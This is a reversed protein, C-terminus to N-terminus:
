QELIELRHDISNLREDQRAVTILVEGIKKLEDQISEMEYKLTRVDGRMTYIVKLGALVFVIVEALQGINISNDFTFM